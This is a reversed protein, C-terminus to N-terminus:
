STRGTAGGGWATVTTDTRMIGHCEPVRRCSLESFTLGYHFAAALQSSPPTLEGDLGSFACSPRLPDTTPKSKQKVNNVGEIFVQKANCGGGGGVATHLAGDPSIETEM